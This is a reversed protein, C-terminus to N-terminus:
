KKERKRFSAQQRFLPTSSGSPNTMPKYQGREQSLLKNMVSHSSDILLHSRWGTSPGLPIAKWYSDKQKSKRAKPSKEFTPPEPKLSQGHYPRDGLLYNQEVVRYLFKFYKKKNQVNPNWQYIVNTGIVLPLEVTTGVQFYQSSRMRLHETVFHRRLEEIRITEWKDTSWM